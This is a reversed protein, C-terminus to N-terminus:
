DAACEARASHKVLAALPLALGALAGCCLARARRCIYANFDVTRQVGFHERALTSGSLWRARAGLYIASNEGICAATTPHLKSLRPSSPVYRLPRAAKIDARRCSSDGCSPSLRADWVPPVEYAETCSSWCVPSVVGQRCVPFVLSCMLGKFHSVCGSDYKIAIAEVASCGTLGAVVFKPVTANHVRAAPLGYGEILNIGDPYPCVDERFFCPGTAAPKTCPVSCSGAWARQIAGSLLCATVFSRVAMLM